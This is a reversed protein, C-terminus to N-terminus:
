RKYQRMYRNMNDMKMVGEECGTGDPTKRITVIQIRKHELQVYTGIM